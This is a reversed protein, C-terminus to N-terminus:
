LKILCQNNPNKKSLILLNSSTFGTIRDIKKPKDFINDNGERFIPIFRTDKKLRRYIPTPLSHKM